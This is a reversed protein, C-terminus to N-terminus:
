IDIPQAQSVQPQVNRKESMDRAMVYRSRQGRYNVDHTLIQVEIVTGDKKRHLRPGSQEVQLIPPLAPDEETVNLDRITMALFDERSYGYRRIAEDNVEIFRLTGLDFVWAAEPQARFLLQYATATRDLEQRTAELEAVKESLKASLVRLHEVHFDIESIAPAPLPHQAKDALTKAVADLFVQPEFPKIMVLQIGIHAAIRRVESELYHATQLIIPTATTGPDARVARALEYGDVGPTILDAIVLDPKVKKILDLGSKGDASLIVVHGAYKLLTAMYQRDSASDDVVIVRAM